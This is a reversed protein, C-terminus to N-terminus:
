KEVEQLWYDKHCETCSRKAYIRCRDCNGDVLKPCISITGNLMRANPYMKLFEDQRTKKPKRKFRDTYGRSCESCPYEDADKSAYKCSSCTREREGDDKCLWEFFGACCGKTRLDCGNCGIVDRCRVPVGNKIAPYTGAERVIALIENKYKEFNTMHVGRMIQGQEEAEEYRALAEYVASLTPCVGMEEGCYKYDYECNSGCGAVAAQGNSLRETLRNM